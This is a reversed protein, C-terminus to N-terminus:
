GEKNRHDTCGSKVAQNGYRVYDPDWLIGVGNERLARGFDLSLKKIDAGEPLKKVDFFVSNEEPEYALGTIERFLERYAPSVALCRLDAAEADQTLVARHMYGSFGEKLGEYYVSGDQAM